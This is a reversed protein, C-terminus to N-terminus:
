ELEKARGETGNRGEIRYRETCTLIAGVGVGNREVTTPTQRLAEDDHRM